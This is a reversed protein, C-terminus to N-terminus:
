EEDAMESLAAEIDIGYEKAYDEFRWIQRKYITSSGGRRGTSISSPAKEGLTYHWFHERHSIYLGELIKPEIGNSGSGGYMHTDLVYPMETPNVISHKLEFVKDFLTIIDDRQHDFEGVNEGNLSATHKGYGIKATVNSKAPIKYETEDIKVSIEATTPNDIIVNKLTNDIYFYGGIAAIILILAFSVGKIINAKELAM